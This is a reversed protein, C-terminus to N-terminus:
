NKRWFRVKSIGYQGQNQNFDAEERSILRIPSHVKESLRKM